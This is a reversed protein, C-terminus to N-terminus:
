QGPRAKRFELETDPPLERVETVQVPQDGDWDVVLTMEIPDGIAFGELDLGKAIPFPMTMSDMGVVKGAPNVFDDIPEHRVAFESTPRDAQPLERVMGRVTYTAPPTGSPKEGSCGAAAVLLLGLALRITRM